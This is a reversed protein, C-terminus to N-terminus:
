KMGALTYTKHMLTHLDNKPLFNSDRPFSNDISRNPVCFLKSNTLELGSIGIQTVTM